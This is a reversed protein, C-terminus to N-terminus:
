GPLTVAGQWVCVLARNLSSGEQFGQSETFRTSAQQLPSAAFVAGIDITEITSGAPRGESYLSPAAYPEGSADASNKFHSCYQGYRCRYFVTNDRVIV